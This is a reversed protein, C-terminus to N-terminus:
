SSVLSGAKLRLLLGPELAQVHKRMDVRSSDAIVLSRLVLGYCATDASEDEDDRRNDQQHHVLDRHDVIFVGAHDLVHQGQIWIPDVRM